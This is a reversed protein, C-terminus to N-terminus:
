RIEQAYTLLGSVLQWRYDEGGVRLLLLLMMMSVQLGCRGGALTLGCVQHAAERVLAAAADQVASHMM